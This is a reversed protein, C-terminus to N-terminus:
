FNLWAFPLYIFPLFSEISLTNATDAIIREPQEDLNLYYISGINKLKYTSKNKDLKDLDM